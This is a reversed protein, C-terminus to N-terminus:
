DPLPLVVEIGTGVDRHPARRVHGGLMTVLQTVIWLGLGHAADAAPTDPDFVRAAVDAPMGPGDDSVAIWLGQRHRRAALRVPAAGHRRANELLNTVIRRVAPVDITVAQVRPGIDVLLGTLRAADAAGAIVDALRAPVQARGGHPGPLHETVVRVADLIATLHEAHGAILALAEARQEVPLPTAPDTLARALARVSAIPTGLEHCLVRLFTPEDPGAGSGTLAGGHVM